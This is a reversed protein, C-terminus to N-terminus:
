RLYVPYSVLLDSYLSHRVEVGWQVSEPSQSKLHVQLTKISSFTKQCTASQCLCHFRNDEPSLQIPVIEGCPLRIDFLRHPCKSVHYDYVNKNDAQWGCPSCVFASMPRTVSFAPICHSLCASVFVCPPLVTRPRLPSPFLLGFFTCVMAIFPPLILTMLYRNFPLKLTYCSTCPAGQSECITILSVAVIPM